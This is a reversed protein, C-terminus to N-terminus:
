PPAEPSAFPLPWHSGVSVLQTGACAPKSAPLRISKTASGPENVDDVTASQSVELTPSGPTHSNETREPPTVHRSSMGHMSTSPTPGHPRPRVCHSPPTPM